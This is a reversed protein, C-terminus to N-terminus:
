KPHQPGYWIPQISPCLQQLPLQGPQEGIHGAGTPPSFALWLCSKKLSGRLRGWCCSQVHLQLSTCVAVNDGGEIDRLDLEEVSAMLDDADLEFPDAAGMHGSDSRTLAALM